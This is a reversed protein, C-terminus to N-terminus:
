FDSRLESTILCKYSFLIRDSILNVKTLVSMEFGFVDKYSKASQGM